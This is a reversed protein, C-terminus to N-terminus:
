VVKMDKLDRFFGVFDELKKVTDEDLGDANFHMVDNRIKRVSNLHEIFVDRHVDLELRGWHDSQGLLVCYGAFTLDAVSEVPKDSGSKCAAEVMESVKFKGRAILNRLNGEIEGILLFPGTLQKFQQAVDSATVIGTITNKHESGGRILIYGHESIDELATLLPSDIDIEKATDMCDKVRDPRKGLAYRAGISKWSIVGKVTHSGTMVPLQSFDNLLMKSTAISLCQDPAVSTLGQHAAELEGVRVTPDELVQSDKGEDVLEISIERDVWGGVFDPNTRLGYKKLRNRIHNVLASTRKVYGFRYVFERVTLKEPNPAAGGKMDKKMQKALDELWKDGSAM